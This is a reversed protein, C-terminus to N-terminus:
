EPPNPAAKAGVSSEVPCKRSTRRPLPGRTRSEAGLVAEEIALQLQIRCDEVVFVGVILHLARLDDVVPGFVETPIEVM